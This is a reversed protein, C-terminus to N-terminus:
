RGVIKRRLSRCKRRIRYTIYPVCEPRSVPARGEASRIIDAHQADRCCVSCFTLGTYKTCVVGPLVSPSIVSRHTEHVNGGWAGQEIHAVPTTVIVFPAFRLSRQVCAIAESENFHELVDNILVLDFSDDPFEISRADAIHIRDYAYGWVPNEYDPFIEVGELRLRWRDKAFREHAVDMSTRLLLGYIGLGVGIDLIRRPKAAQAFHLVTPISDQNSFPM